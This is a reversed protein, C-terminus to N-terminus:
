MATRWASMRVYGTVMSRESGAYCQYGGNERERTRARIYFLLKISSLAGIHTLPAARGGGGDEGSLEFAREM